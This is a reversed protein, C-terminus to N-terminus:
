DAETGNDEEGGASVGKRLLRVDDKRCVKAYECSPGFCARPAVPFFGDRMSCHYERIYEEAQRMLDEWEEASLGVRPGLGHEEGKLWLGERQRDPPELGYYAAGLPRGEPLLVQRVAAVYIPLQVDVGKGIARKGHRDGGTARKYDYLVFRGDRSADIRDVRGRFLLGAVQVPVPVSRPDSEEDVQGFSWEVYVPRLDSNGRRRVAWDYSVWKVLREWMRAKQLPWGPYATVRTEGELREMEAGWVQALLDKAREEDVWIGPDGLGQAERFLAALLRHYVSGAAAPDLAERSEGPPEIGLVRKAFFRFPCTGYDNFLSASYVRNESFSRSLVDRLSDNLIWGDWPSFGQGERLREIVAKGAIRLWRARWPGSKRAIKLAPQEGPVVGVGVPEDGSNGSRFLRAIRYERRRWQALSVFPPGELDDAEEEPLARPPVDTCSGSRWLSELCRSPLTGAGQVYTLEVESRVGDLTLLLWLEQEMPRHRSREVGYGRKELEEYLSDPLLWDEREDVPFVGENLDPVVVADFDMAWAIEPSVAHVGDQQGPLVAVSRVALEERLWTIMEGFTCQGPWSLWGETERWERLVARLKGFADIDSRLWRWDEPSASQARRRLGQEVGLRSLWRELLVAWEALSARVPRESLLDRLEQLWRLTDQVKEREGEPMTVEGSGSLASRIGELWAEVGGRGAPPAAWRALVARRDRGDPAYAGSAFYYLLDRPWRREPLELFSLVHQIVPIELLPKLIPEALPVGHAILTRVLPSEPTLPSFTAVAVREPAFGEE